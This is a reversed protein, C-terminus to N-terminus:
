GRWPAVSIMHKNGTRKDEKVQVIFVDGDPAVGKFRHVSENRGNPNPKTEPPYTTNRLLELACPYYRLRRRRDGVQKEFLHTWFLKLFIKERKFYRSRLYPNRKTARVYENYIRRAEREVDSYDAGHLKDAKTHYYDM